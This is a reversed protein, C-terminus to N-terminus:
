VKAEILLWKDNASPRKYLRTYTKVGNGVMAARIADMATLWDLDRCPVAFLASVKSVSIDGVENTKWAADVLALLLKDVNGSRSKICEMVLEKAAHAEASLSMTARRDIQVQRTGDMNRLTVKGVDLAGIESGGADIIRMSCLAEAESHIHLRVIDAGAAMAAMHCHSDNILANEMLEKAEIQIDPILHGKQNRTYGTPVDKIGALQAAREAEYAAVMAAFLKQLFEPTSSKTELKGNVMVCTREVDSGKPLVEYRTGTLHATEIMAKMRQNSM